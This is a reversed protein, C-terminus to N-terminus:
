QACAHNGVTPAGATTVYQLSIGTIQHNGCGCSVVYVNVPSGCDWVVNGNEDFHYACESTANHIHGYPVYCGGSLEEETFIVNPMNTAYVPTSGDMKLVHVHTQVTRDSPNYTVSNYTYPYSGYNYLGSINNSMVDFTATASTTIGKGTIATAVSSKGNSASQFVSELEDEISTFKTDIYGEITDRSDEIAIITNNHKTDIDSQLAAYNDSMQQNLSAYNDSVSQNLATYNNSVSTALSNYNTEINENLTAYNSSISQNLAAYNNSVSATLNNYNTKINQNFTDYTDNINKTLDTYNKNITSAVDKYFTDIKTNFNVSMTNFSNNVNKLTEITSNYNSNNLAELNSIQTDIDNIVTTLETNISEVDTQILNYNSVIEAYEEETISGGNNIYNLLDSINQKSTDINSSLVSLKSVIDGNESDGGLITRNDEVITQVSGLSGYMDELSVVMTEIDQKTQANTTSQTVMNYSNLGIIGLLLASIVSGMIIFLKNSKKGNIKRFQKIESKNVTNNM